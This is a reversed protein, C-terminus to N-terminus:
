SKLLSQLSLESVEEKRLGETSEKHQSRLSVSLERTVQSYHPFISLYRSSLFLVVCLSAHGLARPSTVLGVQRECAFVFCFLGFRSLSAHALAPHSTVLGVSRERARRKRLESGASRASSSTSSVYRSAIALSRSEVPVLM